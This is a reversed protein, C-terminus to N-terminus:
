HTLLTRSGDKVVQILQKVTKKRPKALAAQLLRKESLYRASKLIYVLQTTRSIVSFSPWHLISEVPPKAASILSIESDSDSRDLQRALGSRVSMHFCNQEGQQIDKMELHLSSILIGVAQSRKGDLLKILQFFFFLTMNISSTLRGMAHHQRFSVHHVQFCKMDAM